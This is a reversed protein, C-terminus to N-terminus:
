REERFIPQTSCRVSGICKAMESYAVEIVRYFKRLEETIRFSGGEPNLMTLITEPDVHVLNTAMAKAEAVSVTLMGRAFRRKFYELDRKNVFLKPCALVRGGGLSAFACDLHLEDGRLRVAKVKWKRGIAKQLARVGAMSTRESIGVFAEGDHLFVDGGELRVGRPLFEVGGELSKLEPRRVREKMSGRYFESEVVTGIDRTFVSEPKPPLFIMRVGEKDLAECMGDHQAVARRQDFTEGQEIKEREDHNIPRLRLLKPSSVLVTKLAGTESFVNKELSGVLLRQGEFFRKDHICPTWQAKGARKSAGARAKGVANM